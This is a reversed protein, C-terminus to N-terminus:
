QTSTLYTLYKTSSIQEVLRPDFQSGAHAQIESMAEDISLPTLRYPRPHTMADFADSIAIIKSYLPIDEGELMFPYGNGNFYEHHLGVSEIVIQPISLGKKGALIDQGYRPHSRIENWESQNLKGSNLLTSKPIKTKGVDHLLSAIWLEKLENSELKITEGIFNALVSVRRSHLYTNYDHKKILNLFYYVGDM